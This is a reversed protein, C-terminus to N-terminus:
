NTNGPSAGQKGDAHGTAALAAVLERLQRRLSESEGRMSAAEETKKGAEALSLALAQELEKVRSATTRAEVLELEIRRREERLQEIMGLQESDIHELRQVESLAATLDARAAAVATSTQKELHQTKENALRSALSWIAGAFELARGQLDTPLAQVAASAESRNARWADLSLKVTTYSGGGIRSQVSKISPEGGEAVITEATQAVLEDDVLRRAM